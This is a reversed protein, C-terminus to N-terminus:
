KSIYTYGPTNHLVIYYDAMGLLRPRTRL